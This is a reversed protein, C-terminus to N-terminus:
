PKLVPISTLREAVAYMEPLIVQEVKGQDCLEAITPDIPLRTVLETSFDDALKESHSPGFIAYEEKCGPCHFFSMNEIIGLIPIDLRNLLHAAKRVVMGSLEQPTTVLMVGKIPLTQMVTITADSTGPPLDVLLTDLKGWLVDDWFKQIMGAILPGRWAVTTDEEKLMLNSSVIRIGLPTIAPLIGLDGGRLGGPPLGFLKPISAGTIDADLIGVKQGRRALEVALLATVSSKGVGGKGSMVSIVRDIKNMANLKPLQRNGTNLVEKREEASMSGFDVHVHQVGPLKMLAERADKAMHDKLPCGPITLNLTFSILGDKIVLDRIMNLSVLDRGLEPDQVTSLAQMVQETTLM